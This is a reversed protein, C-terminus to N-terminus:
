SYPPPFNNLQSYNQGYGQNVQYGQPYSPLQLPGTINTVQAPLQQENKSHIGLNNQDIIIDKPVTSINLCCCCTLSFIDMLCIGSALILLATQVIIEVRYEYYVQADIIDIIWYITFLSLM